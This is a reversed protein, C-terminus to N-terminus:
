STGHFASPLSLAVVAAAAARVAHVKKNLDKASKKDPGKGHIIILLQRVEDISLKGGSDDDAMDFAMKQVFNADASLYNWLGV